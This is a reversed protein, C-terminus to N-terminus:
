TMNLAFMSCNVRWQALIFRTFHRNFVAHARVTRGRQRFEPNLVSELAQFKRLRSATRPEAKHANPKVGPSLVLDANVERVDAMWDNPIFQVTAIFIQIQRQNFISQRIFLPLPQNQRVLGEMRASHSKVPVSLFHGKFCFGLFNETFESVTHLRLGCFDNRKKIRRSLYATGTRRVIRPLPEAPFQAYRSVSSIRIKISAPNLARWIRCRNAVIPRVGSFRLPM